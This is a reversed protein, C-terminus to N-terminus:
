YPCFRSYYNATMYSAQNGNLVGFRWCTCIFHKMAEYRNSALEFEEQSCGLQPIFTNYDPM